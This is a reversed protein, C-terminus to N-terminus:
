IFNSAWGLATESKSKQLAFIYKIAHTPPHSLSFNEYRFLEGIFHSAAYKPIVLAGYLKM